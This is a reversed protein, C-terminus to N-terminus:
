FREADVHRVRANTVLFDPEDGDRIRTDLEIANAELQIVCDAM